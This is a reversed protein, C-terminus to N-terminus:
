KKKHIKSISPQAIKSSREDINLEGLYTWMVTTVTKSSIVELSGDNHARCTGLMISEM